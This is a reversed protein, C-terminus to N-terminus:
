LLFSAFMMLGVLSLSGAVCLVKLRLMSKRILVLDGEMTLLHVRFALMEANRMDIKADVEKKFSEFEARSVVKSLDPAFDPVLDPVLAPLPSPAQSVAREQMLLQSLHEPMPLFHVELRSGQESSRGQRARLGDLNIDSSAAVSGRAKGLLSLKPLLKPPLKPPNSTDM